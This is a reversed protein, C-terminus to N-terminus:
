PPDITAALAAFARDWFWRSLVGQERRGAWFSLLYLWRYMHLTPGDLARERVYGAELASTLQRVRPADVGAFPARCAIRTQVDLQALDNEPVNWHRGDVDLGVLRRGDFLFNDPKADGHQWVHRQPGAPPCYGDLVRLGQAAAAPVVSSGWRDLLAQRRRPLSGESKAERPLCAGHFLALWQGLRGALKTADALPGRRLARQPSQGRVFAFVLLRGARHWPAAVGYEPQAPFNEYAVTAADFAQAADAADDSGGSMLKLFAREGCVSCSALTTLSNIRRRLPDRLQWLRRAGCRPCSFDSLGAVFAERGPM